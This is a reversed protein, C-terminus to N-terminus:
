IVSDPGIENLGSFQDSDSVSSSSTNRGIHSIDSLTHSIPSTLDHTSKRKDRLPFADASSTNLSKIKRSKM